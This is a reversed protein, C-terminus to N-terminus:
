QLRQWQYTDNHGKACMDIGSRTGVPLQPTWLKGVTTSDCEPPHVASKVHAESGAPPTDSNSVKSNSVSAVSYQSNSRNSAIEIDSSSGQTVVSWKGLDVFDNGSIKVRNTAVINIGYRTYATGSPGNGIWNRYIAYDHCGTALKIGEGGQKQDGNNLIVNDSIENDHTNSSAGVGIAGNGVIMNRSLKNYSGDYARSDNWQFNFGELRNNSLINNTFTGYRGVQSIGTKNGTFVCNTVTIYHSGFEAGHFGNDRSVTNTLVMHSTGGMYNFGNESSREAYSDTVTVNATSDVAATGRANVVNGVLGYGSVGVVTIDKSDTIGIGKARSRLNILAVRDGLGEFRLGEVRGGRTKQFAIVTCIDAGYRDEIANASDRTFDDMVITADRGLIRANPKTINFGITPTALTAGSCSFRYRGAPLSITGGKEPLASTTDQFARRDDHRGDAVAGFWQPILTVGPSAITLQGGSTYFIQSKQAVFRGAITLAGGALEFAGRDRFRMPVGVSLSGSVIRVRCTVELTAGKERAAQVAAVLAAADDTSGDCRAGYTRLDMSSTPPTPTVAAATILSAVLLRM